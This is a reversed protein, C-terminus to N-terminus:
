VGIPSSATQQPRAPIPEPSLKVFRLGERGVRQLYRRDYGELSTRARESDPGTLWRSVFVAAVVPQEGTEVSIEAMGEM